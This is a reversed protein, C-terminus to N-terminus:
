LVTALEKSLGGPAIKLPAGIVGMNIQAQRCSYQVMAAFTINEMYITHLEKIYQEM